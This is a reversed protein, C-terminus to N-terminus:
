SEPVRVDQHDIVGFCALKGVFVVQHAGSAVDELQARFREHDLATFVARHKNMLIAGEADGREWEFLHMVWRAGAVSKRASEHAIECTDIARVVSCQPAGHNVSRHHPAKCHFFESQVTEASQFARFDMSTGSM